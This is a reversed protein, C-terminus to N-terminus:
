KKTFRYIKFAYEHREDIEHEAILERKWDTEEFDPFFADADFEAEIETIFMEGVLDHDLAYKYVQGGGIIYVDQEGNKYADIAAEVTPFVACEDSQFNTNRTVVVNVRDPLPRYKDPISDWNKRGMIVVQKRTSDTFFKMDDPLHWILDNDKGIANNKAKAVILKIM